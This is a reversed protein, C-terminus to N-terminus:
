ISADTAQDLTRTASPLWGLLELPARGSHESYASIYECLASEISCPGVPMEDPYDMVARRDCGSQFRCRTCHRDTLM